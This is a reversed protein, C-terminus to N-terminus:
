DHIKYVKDTKTMKKVPETIHEKEYDDDEEIIALNDDSFHKDKM